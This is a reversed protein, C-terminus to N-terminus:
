EDQNLRQILQEFTQPNFGPKTYTAVTVGRTRHTPHSPACRGVDSAVYFAPAPFGVM